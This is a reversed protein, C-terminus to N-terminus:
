FLNQLRFATNIPTTEEISKKQDFIALGAMADHCLLLIGDIL